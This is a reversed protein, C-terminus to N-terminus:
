QKLGTSRRESCGQNFLLSAWIAALILHIPFFFYLLDKQVVADTLHIDSVLLDVYAGSPRIRKLSSSSFLRSNSRSRHKLVKQAFSGTIKFVDASGLQPTRHRSMNNCAAPLQLKKKLDLKTLSKLYLCM